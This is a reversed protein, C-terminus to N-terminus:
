NDVGVKQPLPLRMARSGQKLSFKNIMSNYVCCYNILVDSKTGGPSVEQTLSVM